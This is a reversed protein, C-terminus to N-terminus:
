SWGAVEAPTLSRRLKGYELRAGALVDSMTVARSKDAAIFTAHLAINHISGGTVSLQSLRTTELEATPMSAPFARQWIQARLSADPFPFDVVFRLRRLFATDIASKLNTTLIAIGRYSEMRQLLYSVEINAYRDLSDKVESRRGFIADAEDFLLVASGEDAADFVGSLNKETEGIYKSVVQSLDVRYLDLGLEGAVVEAALTKGTGSDGCFLAAVGEGRWAQGGLGWAEAIQARRRAQVVIQRLIALQGAPVVLDDWGAQPTILAALGELRPRAQEKCAALLTVPSLGGPAGLALEVARRSAAPGISFQAALSDTSEALRRADAGLLTAWVRRREELTPWGVRFSARGAGPLPHDRGSLFLLGRYREALRRAVAEAAPDAKEFELLLARRYLLAEREWLRVLDALDAAAPPLLAASLAWLEAGIAACARAAVARRAAPDPGTVTLTAAAGPSGGLWSQVLVDCVAEQSPVLDSDPAVRTALCSLREDLDDLGLLAHLAWESIRVQSTVLSSGDTVALLQWRRLAGAPVIASWHPEPLVALALGFTVQGRGPDAHAPDGHVAASHAAACLAAVESDLEVAACLLLLETEFSSLRFAVALDGLPPLRGTVPEGAGTGGHGYLYARLREKALAVCDFLRGRLHGEEALHGDTPGDAATM